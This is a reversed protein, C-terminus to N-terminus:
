NGTLIKLKYKASKQQIQHLLMQQKAKIEGNLETLYDSSTATGNKLEANSVKTVSSQLAIIEQDKAILATSKEIEAALVTYQSMLNKDLVTADAKAMEVSFLNIDQAKKKTYFSSINWSLRLGGIYYDTFDNSLFNLGPRGYGAQGFLSIRPRTGAETLANQKVLVEQQLEILQHEPRNTFISPYLSIEDPMVFNTQSNLDLGTLLSIVQMAVLRNAALEILSQDLRLVEVKLVDVQSRKAIGHDVASQLQKENGQLVEKSSQLIAMNEDASLVNFFYNVVQEEVAHLTIDVQKQALLSSLEQLGMQIRTTGADYLTQNVDLYIKYQDKSLPEIKPFDPIPISLKTVESQYTAQGMLQIGPLRATKINEQSLVNIKQQLAVKDTAPYNKNVAALCSDLTISQAQVIIPSIWLFSLVIITNINM